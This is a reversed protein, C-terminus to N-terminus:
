HHAAGSQAFKEGLLNRIGFGLVDDQRQVQFRRHHLDRIRNDKTMHDANEISINKVLVCRQEVFKPDVGIVSDAIDIRLYCRKGIVLLRRDLGVDLRDVRLTRFKGHDVGVFADGIKVHGTMRDNVRGHRRRNPGGPLHPPRVALQMVGFRQDWVATIGTDILGRDVEAFLVTRKVDGRHAINSVDPQHCLFRFLVSRM